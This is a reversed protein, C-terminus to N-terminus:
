VEDEESGAASDRQEFAVLFAEKVREKAAVSCRTM